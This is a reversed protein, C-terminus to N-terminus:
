QVKVRFFNQPGAIANTYPSTAGPVDTYGTLVNTSEQLTGNPWTLIVNNGSQALSLTVPAAASYNIRTLTLQAGASADTHLSLTQGASAALNTFAVVVEPSHPANFTYSLTGASYSVGSAIGSADTFGPDDTFGSIIIQGSTYRTGLGTLSAGAALQLTLSEAGETSENNAGGSVGFWDV